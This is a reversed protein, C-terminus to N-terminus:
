LNHACKNTNHRMGKVKHVVFLGPPREAPLLESLKPTVMAEAVAVPL